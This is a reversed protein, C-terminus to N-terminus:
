TLIALIYHLLLIFVFAMILLVYGKFSNDIPKYVPKGAWTFSLNVIGYTLSVVCSIKIHRKVIVHYVLFYDITLLFLPVTHNMVTGLRKNWPSNPDSEEKSYLFSWFLITIAIEFVLALQFLM